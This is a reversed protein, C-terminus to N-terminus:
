VLIFVCSAFKGVRVGGDDCDDHIGRVCPSWSHGHRARADGHWLVCSASLRPHAVSLETPGLAKGTTRFQSAHTCLASSPCKRFQDKKKARVAPDSIRRRRSACPPNPQRACDGDGCASPTREDSCPVRRPQCENRRAKGGVPQRSARSRSFVSQTARKETKWLFFATFVEEEGMGWGGDGAARSAAHSM